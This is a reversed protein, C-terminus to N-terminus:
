LLGEYNKQRDILDQLTTSSLVGDIAEKVERWVGRTVCFNSRPCINADDVCEVPATSGEMVRIIDILRIEPPLKTLVFGGRAGRTGRVLGAVRLPTLLQELYRESIEQRRAIDKVLVPGNTGYQAMDLMARIAYRGKTSFKM